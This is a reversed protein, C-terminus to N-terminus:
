YAVKKLLDLREIYTTGDGQLRIGFGTQGAGTTETVSLVVTGNVLAQVTTGICSLTIREDSGSLARPTTAIQTTTGTVQKYLNLGTSTRELLIGTAAGSTSYRGYLWLANAATARGTAVVMADSTGLDVTNVGAAGGSAPVIKGSLRRLTGVGLTNLWAYGGTTTNTGVLNGDPTGEDTATVGWIAPLTELGSLRTLIGELGHATASNLHSTLTNTLAAFRTKIEQATLTIVNPM